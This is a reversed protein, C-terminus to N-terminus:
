TDDKIMRGIVAQLKSRAHSARDWGPSFPPMRKCFSAWLDGDPAYRIQVIENLDGGFWMGVYGVNYGYRYLPDSPDNVTASWFVPERDMANASEAIYGHYRIGNPSGYYAIAVRGDAKATIAGYRVHKVEPASVVVPTSWTEGGDRSWAMSLLDKEDPLLLYIVGDPDIAIPECIVYNANLLGVQLINFYSLLRSGPVDRVEWTMGEDRSIGLGLRPGRRFPLYITGDAAVAGSAFIIWEQRPLGHETPVLSISGAKEWNRGGDLSRYVQQRKPYLIPWCRTSIPAPGSMYLINPYGETHSSVPPGAYVKLWDFVEEAVEVHHWTEGLDDSWTMNFGRRLRPPMLSFRASHYFIRDTAPDLYLYAQPRGHCQGGAFRPIIMEWSAGNDRSRLLGNGEPTFVPEFFITGDSAVALSPEASGYGTMICGAVPAKDGEPEAQAPRSGGAGATYPV